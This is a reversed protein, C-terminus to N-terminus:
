IGHTALVEDQRRVDIYYHLKTPIENSIMSYQPM